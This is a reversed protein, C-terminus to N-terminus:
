LGFGLSLPRGHELIPLSPADGLISSSPTDPEEETEPAELKSIALPRTNHLAPNVELSPTRSPVEVLLSTRTSLAALEDDIASSTPTALAQSQETIAPSPPSFSVRPVPKEINPAQPTPPATVKPEPRPAVPQSVSARPELGEVKAMQSKVSTPRQIAPIQPVAVKNMAVPVDSVASVTTSVVSSPPSVESSTEPITEALPKVPKRAPPAALAFPPSAAKKSNQRTVVAVPQAQVNQVNVPIPQRSAPPDSLLPAGLNTPTLPDDFPSQARAQVLTASIQQAASQVPKV